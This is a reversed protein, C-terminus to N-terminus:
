LYNTYLSIRFFNPENALIDYLTGDVATHKETKSATLFVSYVITPSGVLHSNKNQITINTRRNLYQLYLYYPKAVYYIYSLTDNQYTFWKILEMYDIKM